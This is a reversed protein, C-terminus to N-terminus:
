ELRRTFAYKLRKLFPRHVNQYVEESKRSEEGYGEGLTFGHVMAQALYCDDPLDMTKYKPKGPKDTKPNYTSMGGFAGCHKCQWEDECGIHGYCKEVLRWNHQKM